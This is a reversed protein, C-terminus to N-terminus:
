SLIVKLRREGLTNDSCMYGVVQTKVPFSISWIPIPLERIINSTLSLFESIKSMAEESLLKDPNSLCKYTNYREYSDECYLASWEDSVEIRWTGSKGLSLLLSSISSVINSFEKVQPKSLDFTNFPKSSFTCDVPNRKVLPAYNEIASKYSDECASRINFRVDGKESRTKCSIYETNLLEGFLGSVVSLKLHQSVCDNCPVEVTGEEAIVVIRNVIYDRMTGMHTCYRFLLEGTHKPNVWSLFNSAVNVDSTLTHSRLEAGFEGPVVFLDNNGKVLDILISRLSKDFVSIVYGKSNWPVRFLYPSRSHMGASTGRAMGCLSMRTDLCSVSTIKDGFPFSNLSCFSNGEIYLNANGHCYTIVGFISNKGYFKQAVSIKIGIYLCGDVYNSTVIKTCDGLVSIFYDDENRAKLDFSLRREMGNVYFPCNATVDVVDLVSSKSLSMLMINNQKSYLFVYNSGYPLWALIHLCDPIREDKVIEGSKFRLYGVSSESLIDRMHWLEM